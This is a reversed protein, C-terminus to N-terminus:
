AAIVSASQAVALSAIDMKSVDADISEAGRHDFFTTRDPLVESLGVIAENTIPPSVLLHADSRSGSPRDAHKVSHGFARLVETVRAINIDDSLHNSLGVLNAEPNPGDYVRIRKINATMSLANFLKLRAIHIPIPTM